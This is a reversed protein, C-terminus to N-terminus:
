MSIVCSYPRYQLRYSLIMFGPTILPSTVVQPCTYRSLRKEHDVSTELPTYLQILLWPLQRNGPCPASLRGLIDLNGCGQQDERCYNVIDQIECCHLQIQLVPCARDEITLTDTETVTVLWDFCENGLLLGILVSCYRDLFILTIESWTVQELKASLVTEVTMATHSKTYSTLTVLTVRWCHTVNGRLEWVICLVACFRGRPAILLKHNTSIQVRTTTTVKHNSLGIRRGKM